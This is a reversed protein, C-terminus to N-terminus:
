DVENEFSNMSFQQSPRDYNEELLTEDRPVADLNLCALLCIANATHHLYGCKRLMNEPTDLQQVFELLDSQKTKIGLTLLCYLISIAYHCVVSHGTFKHMNLASLGEDGSAALCKKKSDDNITRKSTREHLFICAMIISPLLHLSSVRHAYNKDIDINRNITCSESKETVDLKDFSLPLLVSNGIITTMIFFGARSNLKRPLIGSVEACLLLHMSVSFHQFADMLYSFLDCYSESNQSFLDIGYNSYLWFQLVDMWTFSFEAAILSILIFRSRGSPFKFKRLTQIFLCVVSLRLILIYPLFWSPEPSSLTPKVDEIPEALEELIDEASTATLYDVGQQLVNAIIINLIIFKSAQM